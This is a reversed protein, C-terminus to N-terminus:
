SIVRVAQFPLVPTSTTKCLLLCLFCSSSYVPQLLTLGSVASSTPDKLDSSVIVSLVVHGSREM